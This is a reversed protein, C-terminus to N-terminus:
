SPVTPDTETFSQLATDAKGLSTQVDYALDTKPIGAGPKSYYTKIPFSTETGDVETTEVTHAGYLFLIKYTGTYDYHVLIKNNKVAAFIVGSSIDYLCPGSESFNLIGVISKSSPCTIIACFPNGATFSLADQVNSITISQEIDGTGIISEEGFTKLTPKNLIVGMGSTANWDSRVQDINM